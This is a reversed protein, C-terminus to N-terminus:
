ASSEGCQECFPLLSHRVHQCRPCPEFLHSGCAPCTYPEDPASTSASPLALKRISRRNWYVFKMPGRHIPYECILCLFREYAERYQKLLAALKPSTTARTLYIVM